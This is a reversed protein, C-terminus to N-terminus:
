DESWKQKKDMTVGQTIEEQCLLTYPPNTRPGWSWSVPSLGGVGDSTLQSVEPLNSLRM